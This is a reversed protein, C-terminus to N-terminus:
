AEEVDKKRRLGLHLKESGIEEKKWGQNIIEEKTEIKKEELGRISAKSRGSSIEKM